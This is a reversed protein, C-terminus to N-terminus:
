TASAAPDAPISVGNARLCDSSLFQLAQTLGNGVDKFHVIPFADLAEYKMVIRSSTMLAKVFDPAKKYPLDALKERGRWEHMDVGPEEDFRFGVHANDYKGWLDPSGLSVGLVGNNCEVSLWATQEESTLSIWRRKDDTIEDVSEVTRWANLPAAPLASTAVNVEMDRDSCAGLLGVACVLPGLLVLAKGYM